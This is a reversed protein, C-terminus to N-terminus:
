AIYNLQEQKVQYIQKRGNIFRKIEEIVLHGIRFRNNASVGAIHPTLIVNQLKRLESDPSPPEQLTVDLAAIIPRKKLEDILADEDILWGSATNVLIANDRLLKLNGSNIMNRTEPLKPAHLAVVDCQSMLEDLCAKKVGLEEAQSDPLIPDYVLVESLELVGLLKIFHRGTLGCGVVGAKIGYTEVIRRRHLDLEEDNNKMSNNLAYSNKMASLMLGFSHEGVGIAIAPAASTVIIEKKWLQPITIAKISGAAHCILKLDQAVSLMERDFPLSDWSTIAVSCDKLSKLIIERSPCDGVLNGSWGLEILEARAKEDFCTLFWKDLALVSIKRRKM